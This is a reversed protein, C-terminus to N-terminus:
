CFCDLISSIMKAFAISLFVIQRWEWLEVKRMRKSPSSHCWQWKTPDWYSYTLRRCSGFPFLSLEVFAMREYLHKQVAVCLHCFDRARHLPALSM